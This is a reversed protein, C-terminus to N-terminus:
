RRMRGFGLKRPLLYLQSLRVIDTKPLDIKKGGVPNWETYWCGLVGVGQYVTCQPALHDVKKHSNYSNLQIDIVKSMKNLM